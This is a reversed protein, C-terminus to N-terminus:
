GTALKGKFVRTAQNNPLTLLAHITMLSGHIAVQVLDKYQSTRNETQLLTFRLHFNGGWATYFDCKVGNGGYHIQVHHPEVSYLECHYSTITFKTAVAVHMNVNFMCVKPVTQIMIVCSISSVQHVAVVTHMEM